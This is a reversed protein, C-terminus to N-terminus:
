QFDLQDDTTFHHLFFIEQVVIQSTEICSYDQRGKDEIWAFNYWIIYDYINSIVRLMM